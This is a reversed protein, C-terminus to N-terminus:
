RFVIPLTYRVTVARGNQIAPHYETEKIKDLVVPNLSDLFSNLVVPNVVKGSEDIYFEILMKGPLKNIDITDSIDDYSLSFPKKPEPYRSRIEVLNQATLLGMLILCLPGRMMHM